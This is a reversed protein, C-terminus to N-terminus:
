TNRLLFFNTQVANDWIHHGKENKQIIVANELAKYYKIELCM